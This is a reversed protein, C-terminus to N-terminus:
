KAEKIAQQFADAIRAVRLLESEADAVAKDSANPNRLVACYIRVAVEWSPTMDISKPIHMDM